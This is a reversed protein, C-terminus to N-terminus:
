VVCSCLSWVDMEYGCCFLYIFRVEYFTLKISELTFYVSNLSVHSEPSAACIDPSPLSLSPFLSPTSSDSRLRSNMYAYMDVVSIHWPQLNMLTSLSCPLQQYEHPPNRRLDLM